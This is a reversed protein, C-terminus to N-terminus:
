CFVAVLTTVKLCRTLPSYLVVHAPLPFLHLAWVTGRKKQLFTRIVFETRPSTKMGALLVLSPYTSLCGASRITFLTTARKTLQSSHKTARSTAVLVLVDCPLNILLVACDATFFKLGAVLASQVTTFRTSVLRSVCLFLVFHGQLMCRVQLTLAQAFRHLTPHLLALNQRNLCIVTVGDLREELTATHNFLKLWLVRILRVSSYRLIEPRVILVVCFNLSGALTYTRDERQVKFWYLDCWSM